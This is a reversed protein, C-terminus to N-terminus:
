KHTSRFVLTFEGRPKTNQFHEILSSADKRLVEEFKKTMERCCVLHIDGLSEKINKLIRLIRHCSEYVVVTHGTQYFQILKKKQPGEKKPLFGAFLIKDTPLGSLVAATVFACAGPLVTVEIGEKVALSVLHIGPDSIGPTGAESLLAIDKNEKLAKILVAEKKLRNHQFYSTTPKDIGYADLLIRSKRTDECAILDCNKLCEVARFTFDKLNGIPTAIIYLM